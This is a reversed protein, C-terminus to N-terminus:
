RAVGIALAPERREERTRWLWDALITNFAEPQELMPAHGCRPLLFLNSRPILAHFRWAVDLPTIHDDEGWILCTPVRIAPLHAEINRRKAARAAQLLRLVSDRNSLLRQVSEVWESTALAPDFFIEQMKERVWRSDPRHPVGQTFSREFLGSSGTLILASVRDPHVLALELAVHGGLSNGGIVAHSIGQSELFTRVCEALEIPSTEALWPEFIPLTLAIPRYCGVLAEISATWHSSEGLLGHLLLIPEGTGGENWCFRSSGGHSVLELYEKMRTVGMM